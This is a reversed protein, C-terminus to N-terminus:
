REECKGVAKQLVVRSLAIAKRARDTFGADALSDAKRRNLVAQRWLAAAAPDGCSELVDRARALSSDLSAADDAYYGSAAVGGAGQEGALRSEFASAKERYEDLEDRLIENHRCYLNVASIVCSPCTPGSVNRLEDRTKDALGAARELRNRFYDVRRALTNVEEKEGKRRVAPLQEVIRLLRQVAGEYERLSRETREMVGACRDFDAEVSQMDEALVCAWCATMVGVSKWFIGGSFKM